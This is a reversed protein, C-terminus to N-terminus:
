VPKGAVYTTSRSPVILYEITPEVVLSAVSLLKISRVSEPSTEPVGGTSPLTV